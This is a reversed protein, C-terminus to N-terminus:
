KILRSRLQGVAEFSHGHPHSERETKKKCYKVKENDTVSDVVDQVDEWSMYENELAEM